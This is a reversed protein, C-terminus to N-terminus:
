LATAINQWFCCASYRAEFTKHGTRAVQMARERDSLLQCVTTVLENPETWAVFDAGPTLYRSTVPNMDEVLCCQSSLAEFVRAKLQPIGNRTKSFNLAILSRDLTEMYETFSRRQEQRGGFITVRVDADRLRELSNTRDAYGDRAGLFCVDITKERPSRMTRAAWLSLFRAGIPRQDGDINVCLDSADAYQHSLGRAEPDALDFFVSVIPCSLKRMVEPSVNQPELLSNPIPTFVVVDPKFEAMGVLLEQAIDRGEHFVEDTWIAQREGKGWEDFTEILHPITV